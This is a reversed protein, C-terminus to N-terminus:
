VARNNGYDITVFPKNSSIVCFKRRHEVTFDDIVDKIVTQEPELRYEECYCLNEFMDSEKSM